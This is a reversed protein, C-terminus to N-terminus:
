WHTGDNLWDLRSGYYFKDEETPNKSDMYWALHRAVYPAGTRLTTEAPSWGHRNFGPRMMCFTTDIPAHYLKSKNSEITSTKYYRSEVDIVRPKLHYSDPIDDIKLGLGVKEISPIRSLIEIFYHFIDMPCEEVPVVDPDSLVFFKDKLEFKEFLGSPSKDSKEWLSYPGYNEGIKYIKHHTKEYFELLPEYTSANDLITIDLFDFKEFWTLLQELCEVRNYSNIFVPIRGNNGNEM